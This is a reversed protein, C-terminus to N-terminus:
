AEQATWTIISWSSTLVLRAINLLNSSPYQQCYCVKTMKELKALSLHNCHQTQKIKMDLLVQECKAQNVVVNLLVLAFKALEGIGTVSGFM